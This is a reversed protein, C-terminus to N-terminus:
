RRGALAHLMRAFAVALLSFTAASAVEITSEM